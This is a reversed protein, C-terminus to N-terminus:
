KRAASPIRAPSRAISSDRGFSRARRTSLLSASECSSPPLLAQGGRNMARLCEVLTDKGAQLRQCLRRLDDRDPLDAEVVVTVEGWSRYLATSERRLDLKSSLQFERDDDVIALQCPVEESDQLM